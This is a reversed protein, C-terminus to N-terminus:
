SFRRGQGSCLSHKAFSIRLHEIISDFCRNESYELLVVLSSHPVVQFSLSNMLRVFDSCNFHKFCYLPKLWSSFSFALFFISFLNISLTLNYGATIIPKIRSIKIINGYETIVQIKGLLISSFRRM